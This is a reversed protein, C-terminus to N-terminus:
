GTASQSSTQLIVDVNERSECVYSGQAKRSAREAQRNAKLDLALM